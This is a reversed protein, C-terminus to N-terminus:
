EGEAGGVTVLEEELDMSPEGVSCRDVRPLHVGCERTESRATKDLTGTYGDLLERQIL